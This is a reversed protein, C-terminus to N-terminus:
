YFVVVTDNVCDFVSGNGDFIGLTSQFLGGNHLVRDVDQEFDVRDLLYIVSQPEYLCEKCWLRVLFIDYFYIIKHPYETYSIDTEVMIEGNQQM